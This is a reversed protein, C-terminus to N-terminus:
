RKGIEEMTGLSGEPDVHGGLWCITKQASAVDGPSSASFARKGAWNVCKADVVGEDLFTRSEGELKCKAATKPM